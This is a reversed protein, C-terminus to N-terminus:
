RPSGASAPQRPKRPPQAARRPEQAPARSLNARRRFRSRGTCRLLGSLRSLGGYRASESSGVGPRSGPVGENRTVAKRDEPTALHSSETPNLTRWRAGSVPEVPSSKVCVQRLERRRGASRCHPFPDTLILSACTEIRATDFPHREVERETHAPQRAHMTSTKSGSDEPLVVSTSWKM